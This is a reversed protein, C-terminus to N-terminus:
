GLNEGGSEPKKQCVAGRDGRSSIARGLGGFGEGALPNEWDSGGGTQAARGEMWGELLDCTGIDVAVAVEWSVPWVLERRDVVWGVLVGTVWVVGLAALLSRVVMAATLSAKVHSPTLFVKAGSCRVVAALANWASRSSRDALLSM